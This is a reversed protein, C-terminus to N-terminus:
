GINPRQQAVSEKSGETTKIITIQLNTDTAVKFAAKMEGLESNIDSNGATVRSSGGTIADTM